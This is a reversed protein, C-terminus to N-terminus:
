TEQTAIETARATWGFQAIKEADLASHDLRNGPEIEPQVLV